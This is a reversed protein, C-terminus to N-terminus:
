SQRKKRGKDWRSGPHVGVGRLSGRIYSQLSGVLYRAVDFVHTCGEVYVGHRTPIFSNVSYHCMVCLAQIGGYFPGLGELLVVLHPCVNQKYLLCM